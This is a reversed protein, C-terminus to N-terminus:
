DRNYVAVTKKSVITWCSVSSKRIKPWNAGILTGAVLWLLAQARNNM